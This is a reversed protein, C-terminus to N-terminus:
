SLESFTNLGLLQIEKRSYDTHHEFVEQTFEWGNILSIRHQSNAAETKASSDIEGVTAVIGIDGDDMSKALQNVPEETLPDGDYHKIQIRVTVNGPLNEAILDTDGRDDSRAGTRRMTPYYRQFVTLM